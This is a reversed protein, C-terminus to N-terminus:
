GAESDDDDDEGITATTIYWDRVGNGDNDTITLNVTYVGETSYNHVPSQEYSITGDGFDWSWNYPEVGGTADGLFQIDVEIEAAYPGDADAWFGSLISVGM